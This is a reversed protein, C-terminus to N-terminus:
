RGSCPLYLTLIRDSLAALPCCSPNSPNIKTKDWETVSVGGGRVEFYDQQSEQQSDSAKGLALKYRFDWCFSPLLPDFRPPLATHDICTLWLPDARRPTGGIVASVGRAPTVHTPTQPRCPDLWPPTPHRACLPTSLQLHQTELSSRNDEFLTGIAHVVGTAGQLQEKYTSPDLADAQLWEVQLLARDASSTKLKGSAKSAWPEDISPQGSRSISIM